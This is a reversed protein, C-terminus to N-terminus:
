RNFRFAKRRRSLLEHVNSPASQYQTWDEGPLMGLIELQISLLRALNNARGRLFDMQVAICAAEGAPSGTNHLPVIKPMVQEPNGAHGPAFGPDEGGFGFVGSFDNTRVSGESAKIEFTMLMTCTLSLVGKFVAIHRFLRTCGVASFDGHVELSCSDFLCAVAQTSNRLELACNVFSADRIEESDVIIVLDEFTLQELQSPTLVMEQNDRRLVISVNAEAADVPVPFNM